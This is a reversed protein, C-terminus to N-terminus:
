ATKATLQPKLPMNVSSAAQRVPKNDPRTAPQHCPHEDPKRVVRITVRVSRLASRGHLAGM